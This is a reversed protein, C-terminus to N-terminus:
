ESIKLKVIKNNIERNLWKHISLTDLNARAIGKNKLLLVSLTDNQDNYFVTSIAPFLIPLEEAIEKLHMDINQLSDLESLLSFVKRKLADEQAFDGKEKENKFTNQQKIELKVGELNYDTLKENLKAAITSDSQQGALYLTIEKNQPSIIKRMIFMGRENVEQQIFYNSKRTFQNNLIMVYGLYISPILTIATLLIIIRNARKEDSINKLHVQPFGVLRVFVYTALAIYVSNIIFLYLAGGFFSWQGTAIGYGATCLPPMLATAIAVGPLVNGKHKSGIAIIGAMGGFFAILVDYINPSTRALLESHAEDLPTFTFYLTSTILSVCTAFLFNRAAKKLLELDNICASWGMGIIPGMLPSILMAGIVVATSNVNLGLSAVLIAIILIWLNTGSFRIGKEVELKVLAFDELTEGPYLMKLWYNAM